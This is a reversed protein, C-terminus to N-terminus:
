RIIREVNNETSKGQCIQKRNNEKKKKRLDLDYAGCQNSRM